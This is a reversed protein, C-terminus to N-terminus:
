DQLLDLLLVLYVYAHLEDSLLLGDLLFFGHHLLDTFLDLVENIRFGASGWTLYRGQSANAIRLIHAQVGVQNLM